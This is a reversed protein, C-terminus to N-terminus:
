AQLYVNVLWVPLLIWMTCVTWHAIRRARLTATGAVRFAIWGSLELIAALAILAWTVRERYMALNRWQPYKAVSSEYALRLAQRERDLNVAPVLVIKRAATSANGEPPMSVVVNAGDRSVTTEPGTANQIRVSWRLPQAAAGVSVGPALGAETHSVNFYTVGISDPSTQQVHLSYAPVPKFKVVSWGAFPARSARRLNILAVPASEHTITLRRGDAAPSSGFSGSRSQPLLTLRPDITWIVDTGSRVGLSFDMVLLQDAGLQLVQRRLQGGGTVTRVIDIFGIGDELASSLLRATRRSTAPEGIAHPANAGPWSYAQDVLPDDYPWYGTGTIWDVGGSWHTIAGEDAHKHGHGDHKAWTILTQAPVEDSHGLWWVAYGSLPFLRGPGLYRSHPPHILSVPASGDDPVFPVVAVLGASTNGLLPLSGDPRVLLKLVSRANQAAEVIPQPPAVQNLVALRVARALLNAGLQHYAASHELVVGESSIYFGLQQGLREFAIRRWDSADKLAPFAAAAQLLALNQLVGHNTRVTFHEPKALFRASREALSLVAQLAVPDVDDKERLHRWLKIVLGLRAALAHDNWLFGVDQWQRREHDAFALVRQTALEFYRRDGSKDYAELLWDEVGLGAMFLQFTSTGYKYDAPYGQLRYPADLLTPFDLFGEIIRNARGVVGGPLDEHGIGQTMRELELLIETAPLTRLSEVIARDVFNRQIHFHRLHPLWIMAISLAVLALRASFRRWGFKNM